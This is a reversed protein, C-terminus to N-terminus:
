RAVFGAPVDDADPCLHSCTMLADADEVNFPRRTRRPETTRGRAFDDSSAASTGGDSPSTDDDDDDDRSPSVVSACFRDAGRNTGKATRTAVGGGMSHGTVTVAYGAAALARLSPGM